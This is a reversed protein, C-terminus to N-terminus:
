QPSPPMKPQPPWVTEDQEASMPTPTDGPSPPLASITKWLRVFSVIQFPLGALILLYTVAFLTYNRRDYFSGFAELLLGCTGLSTGIMMPIYWRAYSHLHRNLIKGVLLWGFLCLIPLIVPSIYLYAEATDRYFQM